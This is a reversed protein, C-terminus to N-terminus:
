AYSVVEQIDNISCCVDLSFYPADPDDPFSGFQNLNEICVFLSRETVILSRILSGEEADSKWFMLLSYLFIGMGLSECICKELLKVQVKEWSQLYVSSTLRPFNSANLLWLVDQAEKSTCTLFLHTKNDAVHIRLAQLGLGILISEVDELRYSGLVRPTTDRGDQAMDVLLIHLKNHSSQLLAVERQVLDSGTEDQFIYGCFATKECIESRDSAIEVNFFDEILKYKETNRSVTNASTFLNDKHLISSNHSESNHEKCLTGNNLNCRLYDNGGVSVGEDVEDGNGKLFIVKTGNDNKFIPPIRRKFKHNGKQRVLHDSVQGLHGNREYRDHFETIGLEISDAFYPEDEESYDHLSKEGSFFQMGDKEKCDNDASSLLAIQGNLALDMKTQIAVCDDESNCSCLDGSSDDSCSSGSGPSGACNFDGSTQLFDEEMCLRRHLIDEKYQPPSQPSSNAFSPSSEMLKNVVNPSFGNTHLSGTGDEMECFSDSHLTGVFKLPPLQQSSNLHLGLPAWYTNAENSSETTVGNAGNCADDTFSLDSELLKPSSGGESTHVLDSINKTNKRQAKQRRKQKEYRGNSNDFDIYLSDGETNEMSEDMWEKFERLWDTSKEKKMLEATNILSTIRIYNDAAAVEEKSIDSEHPTSLQDVGEDCHSIEEEVILALQSIKKMKSNSTDEIEHDDKAPFYFGYGAPQKQVKQITSFDSFVHEIGVLVAFQTAKWFWLNQLLSLSGLIELESFNSIINYSLDLGTLSKLNEIGHVTTLANNRLVLKVIRSCVESLSSISRLNNFGLDLNRLKTCKHLNDVKAFRNRSLDLTEVAHLLQLSEDMLILGNSACSVYSLRGWAPSDKIDMIISTFVHRLADALVAPVVTVISNSHVVIHAELGCCFNPLLDYDCRPITASSGRSPAASTSLDCGRLELVRLRAFPLLSLPAPDRGPRTAVVKLSTLLRLIRRLQELARHDGLDAVYTRLYDVPAGAGVAELERLAELRSAVYHLGVPHLRLTVSGELLAGAHRGVFRVLLDLYRDGTVPPAGGGGGRGAGGAGGGGRPCDGDGYIPSPNTSGGCRRISASPVGPLSSSSSTTTTTVSFSVSEAARCHNPVRPSTPSPVSSSRTCCWAPSDSTKATSHSTRANPQESAQHRTQSIAPKTAVQVPMQRPRLRTLCPVM